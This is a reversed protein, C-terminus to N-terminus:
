GPMTKPVLVLDGMVLEELGPDFDDIKHGKKGDSTTTFASYGKALLEKFKAYAEKVQDPITRNWVIRDDGNESLIRMVCQNPDRAPPRFSVEGDGITEKIFGKATLEEIKNLAERVEAHNNPNYTVLQRRETSIDPIQLPM